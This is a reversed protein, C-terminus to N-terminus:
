EKYVIMRIEKNGEFSDSGYLTVVMENNTKWTLNFSENHTNERVPKQGTQESIIKEIEKFKQKFRTEEGPKDYLFSYFDDQNYAKTLSWDIFIAKVHKSNKDYLYESEQAIFEDEIKIFRKTIFDNSAYIEPYYGSHSIGTRYEKMDIGGIKNEISDAHVISLHNSSKQLFVFLEQFGDTGIYKISDQNHILYTINIKNDHIEIIGFTNHDVSFKSFRSNYDHNDILYSYHWKFTSFKEGIRNIPVMSNNVIKGIYTSISDSYIQYLQNNTVFSSHIEKKHQNLRWSSYATDEYIITAGLLSNEGEYYNRKRSNTHYYYEKACQKLNRPNEIEIIENSNTLYYKGDNKDVTKGYAGLVYQKKTEKDIFWTTQGWEGFDLYTIIFNSDEFVKDDDRHTERNIKNWKLTKFDFRFNDHDRNTIVYLMENRIFFDSFGTINFLKPIEINNLITGNTSINLFYKKANRFSYLQREEFFCFYKEDYKVTNILEIRTAPRVIGKIDLYLTDLTIEFIQAKLCSQFTM